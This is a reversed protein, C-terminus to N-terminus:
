QGFQGTTIGTQDTTRKTSTYIAYSSGVIVLWWSASSRGRCRKASVAASSYPRPGVGSAILILVVIVGVM